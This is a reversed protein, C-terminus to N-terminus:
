PSLPAARGSGAFGADSMRAVGAALWASGALLVAASAVFYANDQVVSEAAVMLVGLAFLAAPAARLAGTRVSGYALLLLGALWLLPVGYYVLGWASEQMLALALELTAPDAAPDGYAEGLIGWAYGDIALVSGLGALGVVGLAGGARGLRPARGAVMYALGLVVPVFLILSLLGLAHALQWRDAAEAIAALQEAENGRTLEKPHIVNDVLFVAPGAVLAATTGRRYARPDGRQDVRSM